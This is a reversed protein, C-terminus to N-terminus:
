SVGETNATGGILGRVKAVAEPVSLKKLDVLWAAQEAPSLDKAVERAIAAEDATLANQVALFHAMADPGITALVDAVSEPAREPAAADGPGDPRPGKLAKKAKPQGPAAAEAAKRWDLAEAISPGGGKGFAALVPAAISALKGLQALLGGLDVKPTTPEDDEFGDADDEDDVVARPERAPLGAGDAARLVSAAAEMMLPFRDLCMRAVEANMRIAELVVNNSPDPLPMLPPTQAAVSPAIPALEHVMVYGAPAGAITKNEDDIPDLRYRGPANVEARLDDVDAEIALVLPQGNRGYAVEPAGKSKMKRVRWGVANPPVDFADGNLNFALESM